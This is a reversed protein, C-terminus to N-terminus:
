AEDLAEDTSLEELLGNVTDRIEADTEILNKIKRWGYIVTTHDRYFVRGIVGTSKNAWERGLYFAIHRARAIHKQQRESLLTELSIEFRRCVVFAVDSLFRIPHAPLLPKTEPPKYGVPDFPILDALDRQSFVSM